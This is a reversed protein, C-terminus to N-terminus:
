VTDKGAFHIIRDTREVLMLPSGAYNELVRKRERPTLQETVGERDLMIQEMSKIAQSKTDLADLEQWLYTQEPFLKVGGMVLIKQGKQGIAPAFGTM